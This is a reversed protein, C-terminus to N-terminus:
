AEIRQHRGEDVALQRLVLLLRDGRM